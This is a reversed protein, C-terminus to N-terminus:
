GEAFLGEIDRSGHLVRVIDIRSEVSRYLILYHEFGEVRWVRMGMAAPSQVRYARGMLPMSAIFDFTAEAADLFAQAAEPNDEAIFATIEVLDAKAQSMKQVPIPM